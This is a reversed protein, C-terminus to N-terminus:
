GHLKENMCEHIWANWLLEGMSDQMVGKIEHIYVNTRAMTMIHFIM